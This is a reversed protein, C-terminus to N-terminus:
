CVDLKCFAVNMLRLAQRLVVLLKTATSQGLAFQCLVYLGFLPCVLVIATRKKTPSPHWQLNKTSLTQEIMAIKQQFTKRM